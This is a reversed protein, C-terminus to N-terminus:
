FGYLTKIESILMTQLDVARMNQNNVNLAIFLSEVLPLKALIVKNKLSDELMDIAMESALISSGIEHFIIAESDATAEIISATIKTSDTGFTNEDLGSANIIQYDLEKNGSMEKAFHITEKALKFSHSVVILNAM